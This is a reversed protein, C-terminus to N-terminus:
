VIFGKGSNDFITSRYNTAKTHPRQWLTSNWPLLLDHPSCPLKKASSITTSLGVNNQLSIAYGDMKKPNLMAIGLHPMQAKMAVKAEVCQNASSTLRQIGIRCSQAQSHFTIPTTVQVAQKQLGVNSLVDQLM